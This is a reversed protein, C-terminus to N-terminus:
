RSDWSSFSAEQPSLQRRQGDAFRCHAEGRALRWLLQRPILGSDRRSCVNTQRINRAKNASTEAQPLANFFGFRKRVRM